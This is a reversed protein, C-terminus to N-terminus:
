QGQSLKKRLEEIEATLSALLPEYEARTEERGEKRGKELGEALGEKRSVAHEHIRDEKWKRRSHYRAREDPNQSIVLLTERAVAIGEKKKIIGDIVGSYKPNNGLAFFM